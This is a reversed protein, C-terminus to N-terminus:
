TTGLDFKVLGEYTAINVDLTTGSEYLGPDFGEPSGESCYVLTSAYASGALLVAMASAALLTKILRM